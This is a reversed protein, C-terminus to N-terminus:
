HPSRRRQSRLDSQRKFLLQLPLDAYVDLQASLQFVAALVDHLLADLKALFVVRVVVGSHQTSHDLYLLFSLHKFPKLLLRCGPM